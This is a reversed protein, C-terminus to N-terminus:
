RGREARCEKGVRREESRQKMQRRDAALRWAATQRERLKELVRVGRDAEVVAQRRRETEQEVQDMQQELQRRQSALVIEYRHTQLLADVDAAGPSKLERTRALTGAQEERLSREQFHLM